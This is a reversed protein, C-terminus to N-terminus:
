QASPATISFGTAYPATAAWPCARFPPIRASIPSRSCRERTVKVLEEGAIKGFNENSDANDVYFRNCGDPMIVAVGREAAWDEILTHRLWDLESGQYGHLLYITKFPGSKYGGNTELPLVATFKQAGPRACSHYTASLVAM